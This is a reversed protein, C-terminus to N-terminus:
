PGGVVGDKRAGHAVLWDRVWTRAIEDGTPLTFELGCARCKVRTPPGQVLRAGCRDCARPTAALLGAIVRVWVDVRLFVRPLRAVPTGAGVLSSDVAPMRDRLLASGLDTLVGDHEFVGDGAVESALDLITREPMLVTFAHEVDLTIEVLDISEAGLADLSTDARVDAPDIRLSSAVITALRTLIEREPLDAPPIFVESM